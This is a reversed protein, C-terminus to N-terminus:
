IRSPKKLYIEAVRFSPDKLFRFGREVMGQEKYNALLEDPSLDLDNMALVFRGFKQRREAVIALNHEVEASVTYVTEVPEDAKPRGRKKTTKRTTTRIALSSFRFLPHEQLWKGAAIRADPECAFERAGLKRLSMKELRKEFARERQEQMPASRYVVWEQPIGAYESRHEAYRYRDDM